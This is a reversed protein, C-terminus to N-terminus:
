GGKQLPYPKEINEGIVSAKDGGIVVSQEIIQSSKPFEDMIELQFSGINQAIFFLNPFRIEFFVEVVSPNDFVENMDEM